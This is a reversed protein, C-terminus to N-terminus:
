FYERKFFTLAFELFVNAKNITFYPTLHGGFGRFYREIQPNMSGEFDFKRLGLKKAKKICEWLTASGVGTHMNENSTGGFLYYATLKDHVCFSYALIGKEDKAIFAFSNSLNSFESLLRTLIQNNYKIRNRKFTDKILSGIILYDTEQTIKINDKEVKKIRNRREASFSSFLENVPKDLNHVYTYNPVVKYKRWIFPQFDTFISPFSIRIVGFGNRDYFILLRM